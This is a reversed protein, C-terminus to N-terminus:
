AARGRLGGALYIFGNVAVTLGDETAAEALDEMYQTSDSYPLGEDEVNERYWEVGASTEATIQYFGQGDIRIDVAGATTM